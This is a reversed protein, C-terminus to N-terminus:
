MRLSELGVLRADEVGQAPPAGKTKGKGSELKALRADLAKIAAMNVGNMSVLDIAKGGPAAEEGMAANVDQAMPGVHQGGDGQGPKFQWQSVPVKRLASMAADGEVPEINQKANVDSLAVRGIAGAVTGIAGMADGRSQVQQGYQTNLINAASSGTSGAVGSYSLAPQAFASRTGASQGPMGAAAQNAGISVQSAQLGQQPLGRGFNAVGQRLQMGTLETNTRETNIAGAKALALQNAGDVGGQVSRGSAPDVGMSALRRDEQGRANDFQGQVTNAATATRQAIREPSDYNMAEGVMRDEVPQFVRGYRELQSAGFAADQQGQGIQQQMLQDFMPAYRDYQERGFALEERATGAMERSLAAQDAAAQGIAPDPKPQSLWGM